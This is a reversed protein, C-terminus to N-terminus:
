NLVSVNFVKGNGTGVGNGTRIAITLVLCSNDLQCYIIRSYLPPPTLILRRTLFPRYQHIDM